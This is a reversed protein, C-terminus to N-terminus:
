SGPGILRRAQTQGSRCAEVERSAACRDWARRLVARDFPLAQQYFREFLNTVLNAEAIPSERRPPDGAADYFQSLLRIEASTISAVKRKGLTKQLKKVETRWLDSDPHDALARALFGACEIPRTNRCTEDVVKQLLTEPVPGGDFGAYRRLLSNREGVAAPGVEAFRPLEATAGVFFARAAADSLRPHRLTHTPGEMYAANVVDLPLVEHALLAELSGIGARQFGAQFDPEAFRAALQAPDLVREPSRVGILLIDSAMTFWVSVHDFVARYTRLVLELTSADLEYGHFWQGYVGGPELHDRAARLFEESYLMEIGTVWPNSPESAIVDFRGQSRLLARYADSRVRRVKPNTSAGQNAYEFFPAAELVGRSIEAVTVERTGELAALQGTTVGTGFGIVFAREHKEALLAPLLAMLAMTPYDGILDSDSKGNTVIARSTRGDPVSTEKVTVTTTPDDRYFLVRGTKRNKFFAAPGSYAREGPQRERFLGAALRDPSWPPFVLVLSLAFAALAGGAVSWPLRLVQVTLLAAGLALAGLAVRYVQHLDLWFLLAYGGLLAGLLSGLTNWSYLRGAVGGLDGLERRLHHFLLPLLAGSLGIPLALVMLLALFALLHYTYFNIPQDRVLTRLVHAWYPADDLGFYLASLLAVLAWQSGVVLMPPVRAFASVALSGLAICLVFVAVVMAFTFHSAGFSLAGVRNLVTQLSMMAFGALAAVAAYVAVSRAPGAAGPAALPPAVSPGGRGVRDLGVFALGAVLNVAGMTYLVRDLGLWPVLVFGGALAGAFAGVTNFGYVWAHVRTADSLSGALAQTLVPITGGMLITPPLLLAATLLLDGGFALAEHGAPLWLSAHQAGTFLTPFAWAYLGIGVEVGGYLGLLHPARGRAAAQAVRQSVLRGFVAYGLALGGLFLGLVAATAESDAGLLTALYKQWAVEYVLGSFGTLVTLLLAAPRTM